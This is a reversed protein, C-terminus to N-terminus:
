ALPIKDLELDLIDADTMNYGSISLNAKTNFKLQPPAVQRNCVSLDTKVSYLPRTTPGLDLHQGAYLGNSRPWLAAYFRHLTAFIYHVSHLKGLTNITALSGVVQALQQNLSLENTM